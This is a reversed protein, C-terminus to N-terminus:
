ILHRRPHHDDCADHEHHRHDEEGAGCDAPMVVVMVVVVAHVTREIGLTGVARRGTRPREKRTPRKGRAHAGAPGTAWHHRSGEARTTRATVAIVATMAVLSLWRRRRRRVRLRLRRKM